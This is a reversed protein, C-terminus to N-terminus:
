PTAVVWIDVGDAGVPLEVGTTALEERGIEISMPVSTTSAGAVRTLRVRAAGPLHRRAIAVRATGGERLFNELYLLTSSARMAGAQGQWLWGHVHTEAGGARVIVDRAIGAQDLVANAWNLADNARPLRVYDDSNWGIAPNGDLRLVRDSWPLGLENSQDGIVVITGGREAYTRLRMAAEASQYGPHQWVVLRYRALEHDSMRDVFAVDPVAGAARLVGFLAGSDFSAVAAADPEGPIQYLATTDRAILVSSPPPAGRVVLDGLGGALAEGFAKLLGFAPRANLDKDLPADFALESDQRERGDWNFGEHFYYIIMAKVGNGILSAYSHQRSALSVETPPFWGGVTETSMLWNGATGYFQRHSASFLRADHAAKMPANLTSQEQTGYTKPYINLTSLTLRGGQRYDLRPLLGQYPANWSDCSTFLVTPERLGLDDWIARLWRYYERIEEDHFTFWDYHWVWWGGYARDEASAPPRADTFDGLSTGYAQRLRGLDGGYTQRLFDHYRGIAVPSLDRQYVSDWFFNTENDLQLLAIAKGPGVFDRLVRTYLEEFWRRVKAQYVPHGYTAVRARDSARSVAMAEPYTEIFWLPIGGFGTPGWEANIYPGPRFMVNRLGRAEVKRLFGRLDRSPYDANGDGDQDLTGDFDFVGEVPEHFDWPVYFTVTNMGAEAVRDLLKDWLREVEARPVNRGPGGRVRFYQTEAGFLFPTADGDVFLRDADVHVRATAAPAAFAALMAILLLSVVRLRSVRSQVPM